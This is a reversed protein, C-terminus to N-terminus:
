LIQRYRPRNEEIQRAFPSAMSFRRGTVEKWDNV